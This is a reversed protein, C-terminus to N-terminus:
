LEIPDPQSRRLQETTLENKKSVPERDKYEGMDDFPREEPKDSLKAVKAYWDDDDSLKLDLVTPDWEGTGTLPITPLTRIEEDTPRQLPLYPLGNIFDLPLVHGDPTRICQTGGTKISRDDVEIKFYEIQGSSHITRNQGHLAYNRMLVNIPGKNSMTKGIADVMVLATMQHNDIGTVDVTNSHRYVVRADGGLIGGNAGRDVLSGRKSRSRAESVHYTVHANCSVEDRTSLDTGESPVALNAQDPAGSVDGIVRTRTM